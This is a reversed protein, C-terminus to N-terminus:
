QLFEKMTANLFENDTPNVGLGALHGWLSPIPVLKVNPIFQSEYQANGIPFYLDTQCTMYLVRAKIARLAKEHDGNFGPTNGVNNNQWTVAQSLLNNADRSLFYAEWFNRLHDEVSQHNLQKFLERRWWEQSLGWAAYHRAVARLGKDPPKEYNGGNWAADAMLASKLGELRVVGHPYEKASVCYPAIVDMFDPYSVAWQFTQQAGMSFGTVAKLHQIGFQETVLRYMARINDRTSIEPFNPGNLPPPTNSPSSSLGDAFMDTTIIFYQTPDLARGPGILFDQGHHDGSYFSPVVIANNKETNLSGHTVYSLKADPLTIGSELPFNGLNFIQHNGGAYTQTGSWLLVLALTLMVVVFRDMAVGGIKSLSRKMPVGEEQLFAIVQLM